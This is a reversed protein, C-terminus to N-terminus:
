VGAQHSIEKGERWLLQAPRLRSQTSTKPRRCLRSPAPLPFGPNTEEERERGGGGDWHQSVQWRKLFAVSHFHPTQFFTGHCWVWQPVSAPKSKMYFFLWMPASQYMQLWRPFGRLIHRGTQGGSIWRAPLVGLCQGVEWPSSSGSGSCLDSCCGHGLGLFLTNSLCLPFSIEESGNMSVELSPFAWGKALLKGVIGAEWIEDRPVKSTWTSCGRGCLSVCIMCVLSTVWSVAPVAGQETRCKM